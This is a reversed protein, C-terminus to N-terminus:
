AVELQWKDRGPKPDWELHIHDKELVIDYGLLYLRNRMDLVINNITNGNPLNSTRLDAAYGRGHINKLDPHVSDTLSTVVLEGGFKAYTMDTVGLAYWIPPQVGNANVGAKFKM